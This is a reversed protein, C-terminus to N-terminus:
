SGAVRDLRAPPTPAPANLTMAVARGAADLEFSAVGDRIKAFFDRESKPYLRTPVQGEGTALLHDGERVVKFSLAPKLEYVGAYRDLVAPSLKVQPPYAPEGLCLIALDAALRSPLAGDFNALAISTVGDKPYRQLSTSFGPIGGDHAIRDHGLFPGINLGFGYHNGWDTTMLTLSAPSVVKGDFLAQEWTYLDDVTSYLSGAAYPLSMDLYSAHAWGRPGMTYRDARRPLIEETVDYGSGTMGLPGFIHAKLYDAYRQGSAKEIVYGLVIYGTNDYAFKSGPEFELPKDRTLKIIEEPTRALRAQSDFFHPIATYSPIGSTHTLLHKLTVKSWAAPADPYYKSIPDDIALKGQEALQLIAAATFQKTVSGLRFRTDPANPINWERNALGVGRRLAVKGDRAVLVAGSFVQVEAYPAIVAEARRGFDPGACAREAAQSAGTGALVAVAAVWGFADYKM